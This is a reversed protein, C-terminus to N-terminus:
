YFRCRGMTHAIAVISPHYVGPGLAEDARISASSVGDLQGIVDTALSQMAAEDGKRILAQTAADYQKIQAKAAFYLIQATAPKCIFAGDLRRFAEGYKRQLREYYSVVLEGIRADARLKEATPDDARTLRTPAGPLTQARAPAGAVLALSLAIIARTVGM